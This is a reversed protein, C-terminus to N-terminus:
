RHGLTAAVATVLAATALAWCAERAAISRPNKGFGFEGSAHHWIWLGASAAVAGFTFLLWPPSGHRLMDGADGIRDFVGLGIYAGNAILCFGVFFDAYRRLPLGILRAFTALALPLAIGVFPGAWAVVLPAPNPSVDTRSIALPHLVVQRVTGGTAWAALVHGLEHVAQLALWSTVFLAAILAPRYIRKM